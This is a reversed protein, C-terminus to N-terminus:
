NYLLWNNKIVDKSYKRKYRNPIYKISEINKNFAIDCLHESIDKSKIKRLYNWDNIVRVEFNIGKAKM